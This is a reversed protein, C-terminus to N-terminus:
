VAEFESVAVSDTDPDGELLADSDAEWVAVLEAECDSVVDFVADPVIECVVLSDCVVDM